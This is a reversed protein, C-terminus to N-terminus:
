KKLLQTNKDSVIQVESVKNNDNQNAVIFDDTIVESKKEIFNGNTKVVEKQIVSKVNESDSFVKFTGISVVIAALLILGFKLLKSKMYPTILM